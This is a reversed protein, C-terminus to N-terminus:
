VRHLSREPIFVGRRRFAAPAQAISIARFGPVDSVFWFSDLFRGSEVSWAPRQLDHLVALHEGLAGLYADYRPNGTPSPREAIAEARSRNDDRLAFEDLFDRVARRFDEGANARRAVGALTTTLGRPPHAALWDSRTSLRTAMSSSITPVPAAARSLGTSRRGPRSLAGHGPHPASRRPRPRPTRAQRVCPRRRRARRHRLRLRRRPQHRPRSPPRRYPRARRRARAPPHWALRDRRRGRAPQARRGGPPGAGRRLQGHV